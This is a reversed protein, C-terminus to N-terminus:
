HPQAEARANRRKSGTRLRAALYLCSYLWMVPDILYDWYNDSNKLDLSYALTAAALMVVSLYNRHWCLWLSVALMVLLMIQPSYGWRYPDLGTIGLTAPFLATGMLAFVITMGTRMHAAEAPLVELRLLCCWFLWILTPIALEGTYSSTYDGLSLGGIPVLSVAILVPLLIWRWPPSFHRTPIILFLLLVFAAHGWVEIPIM